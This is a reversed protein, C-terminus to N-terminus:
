PTNPSSRTDHFIFNGRTLLFYESCPDVRLARRAADLDERRRRRAASRRGKASYRQKHWTSRPSPSTCLLSARLASSDRLIKRQAVSEQDHLPASCRPASLQSRASYRQKRWPCFASYRFSRLLCFGYNQLEGFIRLPRAVLTLIGTKRFCYLSPEPLSPLM